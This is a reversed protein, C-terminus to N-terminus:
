APKRRQLFSKLQEHGEPGRVFFSLSGPDRWSIWGFTEGYELAQQYEDRSLFGQYLHGDTLTLRNKESEWLLIQDVVTGPLLPGSGGSGMEPHAHSTLYGLLQQATIGSGLVRRISARNIVGTVQPPPHARM